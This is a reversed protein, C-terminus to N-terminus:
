DLAALLALQGTHYAAHEIFYKLKDALEESENMAQTIKAQMEGLREVAAQWAAESVEEAQCALLAAFAGTRLGRM